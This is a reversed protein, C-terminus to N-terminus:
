DTKKAIIEDAKTEEIAIDVAEAFPSGWIADLIKKDVGFIDLFLLHFFCSKCYTAAYSYWTWNNVNLFLSGIPVAAVINLCPFCNSVSVGLLIYICMVSVVWLLVLWVYSMGLSIADLMRLCLSNEVRVKKAIVIWLGSIALNALQPVYRTTSITLINLIAFGTFIYMMRHFGVTTPFSKRHQSVATFLVNLKPAWTLYFVLVTVLEVGFYGDFSANISNLVNTFNATDM